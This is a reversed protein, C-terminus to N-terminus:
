RVKSPPAQKHFFARSARLDRELRNDDHWNTWVLGVALVVFYGIVLVLDVLHVGDPLVDLLFFGLVSGTALVVAGRVHNRNLRVPMPKRAMTENYGM